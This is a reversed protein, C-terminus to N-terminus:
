SKVSFSKMLDLHDKVRYAAPNRVKGTHNRWYSVRQKKNVLARWKHNTAYRLRHGEGQHENYCKRCFAYRIEPDRPGFCKRCIKVKKKKFPEIPGGYIRLRTYHKSCFGLGARPKGCLKIICVKPDLEEDSM